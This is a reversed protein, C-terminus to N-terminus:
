PPCAGRFRRTSHCWDLRGGGPQARRFVPGSVPAHQNAGDDRGGPPPLVHRRHGDDRRGLRTAALRIADLDTYVGPCDTPKTNRHGLIHDPAIHYTSMLYASLREVAALQRPTPPHDMMNGVLCIGIGYENFRNDPTKAHAGIIQQTWRFTPEVQGDGSETGDGIVFDYGVGDWGQLKHQRDIAALNGRDADSHHIVIWRWPRPTVPPVWSKPVSVRALFHDLKPTLAQVRQPVKVSVKPAVPPPPLVPAEVPEAAALQSPGFSPPVYASPAATPQQCGTAVALTAMALTITPTPLFRNAM